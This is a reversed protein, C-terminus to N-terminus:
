VARTRAKRGYQVYVQDRLDQILVGPTIRSAQSGGGVTRVSSAVGTQGAYGSSSRLLMVVAEATCLENVGPPVDWRYIQDGQSMAAATTGLAGRTVTLTRPAYITSGTHTALTSGDWGRRVTLNNSAIDVILMREGDLLITEGVAFAAGSTVAVTVNNAQATLPTQLTQGVSKMRKETVLLRESGVRLVQGVGISASDTVDMDTESTTMAEDVTGAPSEDNTYGWLGTITIARQPTSSGGFAANTDLDLELRNYPPGNRNPELLVNATPITVGGSSVATVSILESDDLWLRWPRAYQDPWDFYRTATQPYFRRHCLGEITRSAAEIARDVQANARATEKLDLSAKVDERTAYWVGGV